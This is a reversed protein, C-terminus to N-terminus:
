KLGQAENLIGIVYDDYAYFESDTYNDNIATPM